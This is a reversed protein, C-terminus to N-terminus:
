AVLPMLAETGRSTTKERGDEWGERYEGKKEEEKGGVGEGGM